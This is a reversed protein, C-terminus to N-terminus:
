QGKIVTMIKDLAENLELEEKETLELSECFEVILNWHSSSNIDNTNAWGKIESAIKRILEIQKVNPKM